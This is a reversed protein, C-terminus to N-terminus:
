SKPLARGHRRGPPFQSPERNEGQYQAAVDQADRPPSDDCNRSKGATTALPDHALQTQDGAPPDDIRPVRDGPTREPAQDAAPSESGVGEGVHGGVIRDVLQRLADTMELPGFGPMSGPAHHDWACESLGVFERITLDATWARRLAALKVEPPVGPALFARIDTEATISEIPPLTAPDFAPAAPAQTAARPAGSKDVIRDDAANPPKPAPAEPAPPEAQEAAERKRRAWRSLFTETESM